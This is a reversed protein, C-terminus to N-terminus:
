QARALQRDTIRGNTRVHDGRQLSEVVVTAVNDSTDIVFVTKM